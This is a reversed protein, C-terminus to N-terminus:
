STHSRILKLFVQFVFSEPRSFPHHPVAAASYPGTFPVKSQLQPRPRQSPSFYRSLYQCTSIPTTSSNGFLARTLCNPNPSPPAILDGIHHTLGMTVVLTSPPAPYSKTISNTLSSRMVHGLCPKPVTLSPFVGYLAM